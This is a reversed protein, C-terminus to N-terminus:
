HVPSNKKKKFHDILDNLIGGGLSGLVLGALTSKWPNSWIVCSEGQCGVLKWYLFGGLAGVLGGVIYFILQKINTKM